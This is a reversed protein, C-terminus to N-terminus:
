SFVLSGLSGKKDGRPHKGPPAVIPRDWLFSLKPDGVLLAPRRRHRRSSIYEIDKRWDGPECHVHGECPEIYHLHSYPHGSCGKPKYIDGFRDLHAAKAFKAEKPIRESLWFDRHSELSDSIRMLYFLSNGGLLGFSTLGAIWKGKWSEVDSYTRMWHKCSCLTILDGQFNPGSGTQFLRGKQYTVTRVVYSYVIDEQYRCIAKLLAGHSLNTNKALKGVPMAQYAHDQM